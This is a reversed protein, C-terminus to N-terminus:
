SQREEMVDVALLAAFMLALAAMGFAILGVIEASHGFVRAWATLVLWLAGGMLGMGIGANRLLSGVDVTQKPKSAM